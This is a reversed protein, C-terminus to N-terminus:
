CHVSLLPGARRSKTVCQWYRRSELSRTLNATIFVRGLPMLKAAFLCPAGRTRLKSSRRAGEGSTDWAADFVDGQSDARQQSNARIDCTMLTWMWEGLLVMGLKAREQEAIGDDM